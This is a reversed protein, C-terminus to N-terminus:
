QVVAAAVPPLVAASKQLDVCCCNTILHYEKCSNAYLFKCDAKRCSYPLYAHNECCCSDHSQKYSCFGYVSSDCLPCGPHAGPPGEVGTSGPYQGGPYQNGPYHGGPYQNGPYHGGPYQNGPYQGGPYQNGPYQGGPYQGGPYQNGPYPGPYDPYQGYGAGTLYDWIDRIGFGNCLVLLTTFFIFTLKSAM